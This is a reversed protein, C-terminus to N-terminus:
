RLSFWAMSSMLATALAGSLTVVITLIFIIEGFTM